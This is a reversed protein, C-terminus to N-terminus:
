GSDAVVSVKGRGRRFREIMERTVDGRYCLPAHGGPKSYASRKGCRRGGRDRNDPCPCNGQYSLVSERILIESIQDDSLDAAFTAHALAWLATAVITRLWTKRTKQM